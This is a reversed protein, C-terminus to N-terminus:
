VRSLPEVLDSWLYPVTSEERRAKLTPVDRKQACIDSAHDPRHDHRGTGNCESTEKVKNGSKNGEPIKERHTDTDRHSFSSRWKYLIAKGAHGSLPLGIWAWLSAPSSAPFVSSHCVQVRGHLTKNLTTGDKNGLSRDMSWGFLWEMNAVTVLKLIM